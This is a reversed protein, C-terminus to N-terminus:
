GIKEMGHFVKGSYKWAMSFPDGARRSSDRGSM